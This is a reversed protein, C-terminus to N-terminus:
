ESQQLWLLPNLKYSLTLALHAGPPHCQGYALPTWVTRGVSISPEIM